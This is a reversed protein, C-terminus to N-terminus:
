LSIVNGEHSRENNHNYVDYFTSNYHGYLWLVIKIPIFIADVGNGILIIYM